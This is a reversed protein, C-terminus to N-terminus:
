APQLEGVTARAWAAQIAERAEPWSLKSRGKVREWDLRLVDELEDFTAAAGCPRPTASGTPRATTTMASARATIRSARFNHQWHADEATPNILRHSM